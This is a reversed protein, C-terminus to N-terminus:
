VDNLLIYLFQCICYVFEMLYRDYNHTAKPTIFPSEDFKLAYQLHQLFFPKVRM